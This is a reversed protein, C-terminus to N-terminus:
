LEQLHSQARKLYESKPYVDVLRQFEERAKSKDGLRLYCLGLKFQASDNKNSKPFTFVKEFDILAKKYQGLAYHCEGIWFQANDALSHNAQSALLSEFAEIANQYNRDNFM